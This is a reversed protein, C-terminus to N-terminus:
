ARSSRQKWYFPVLNLNWRMKRFGSRSKRPSTRRWSKPRKPRTRRTRWRRRLDPRNPRAQFLTAVDPHLKSTWFSKLVDLYYPFQVTTFWYGLQSIFLLGYIFNEFDKQFSWMTKKILLSLIPQHISLSLQSSIHTRWNSKKICIRWAVRKGWAQGDAEHM